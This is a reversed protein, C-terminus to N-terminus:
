FWHFDDILEGVEKKWAEARGLSEEMTSIEKNKTEMKYQHDREKVDIEYKLKYTIENVKENLNKKFEENMETVTNNQKMKAETDLRRKEKRFNKETESTEEKTNDLQLQLNQKLLELENQKQKLELRMTNDDKKQVDRYRAELYTIEDHLAKETDEFDRELTMAKKSWDVNTEQVADKVDQKHEFDRQLIENENEEKKKDIQQQSLKKDETLKEEKLERNSTEDEHDDKVNQSKQSYEANKRDKTEDLEKAQDKILKEIEKKKGDVDEKREKIEEDVTEIKEKLKNQEEKAKLQADDFEKRDELKQMDIGRQFERNIEEKEREHDRREREVERKLNDQVVNQDHVKAIYDDREREAWNRQKEVDHYKRRNEATKMEERRMEHEAVQLFMEIEFLLDPIIVKKERENQIKSHQLAHAAAKNKADHKPITNNQINVVSSSAM